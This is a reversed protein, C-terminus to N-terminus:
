PKLRSQEDLFALEFKYARRYLWVLLVLTIVADLGYGIYQTNTDFFAYILGCTVAIFESGIFASVAVAGLIASLHLRKNTNTMKSEQALFPM